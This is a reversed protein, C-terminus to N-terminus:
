QQLGMAGIVALTFPACVGIAARDAGAWQLTAIPARVQHEVFAQSRAIQTRRWRWLRADFVRVMRVSRQLGAPARAHVLRAPIMGIQVPQVATAVSLRAAMPVRATPLYRSLHCFQFGGSHLTKISAM